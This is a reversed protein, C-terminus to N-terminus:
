VEGWLIWGVVLVLVLVAGVVTGLLSAVLVALFVVGLVSLAILYAVTDANLTVKGAPVGPRRPGSRM